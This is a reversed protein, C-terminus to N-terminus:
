GGGGGEGSFILFFWVFCFGKCLLSNFTVAFIARGEQVNVNTYINDTGCYHVKFLFLFFNTQWFFFYFKKRAGRNVGKRGKLLISRQARM